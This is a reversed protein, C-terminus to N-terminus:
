NKKKGRTKRGREKRRKKKKEKVRKKGTGSHFLHKSIFTKDYLDFFNCFEIFNDKSKHHV